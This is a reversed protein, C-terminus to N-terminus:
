ILQLGTSSFYVSLFFVSFEWFGHVESSEPLYKPWDQLTQPLEQPVLHFVLCRSNAGQMTWFSVTIEKPTKNNSYIQNGTNVGRLTQYLRNNSSVFGGFQFLPSSGGSAILKDAPSKVGTRLLLREKWNKASTDWNELSHIDLISRLFIPPIRGTHYRHAAKMPINVSPSSWIFAAPHRPWSAPIQDPGTMWIQPTRM